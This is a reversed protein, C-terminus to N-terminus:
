GGAGPEGAPPTAPEGEPPTVPEDAPPAQPGEVPPVEDPIGLEARVAPTLDVGTVDRLLPRLLVEQVVVNTNNTNLDDATMRSSFVRDIGQAEAVTQVAAHIRAYAGGLQKASVKDLRVDREQSKQNYQQSLSQYQEYLAQGITQDPNNPDLQQLQQVTANLQAEFQQLQGNFVQAEADRESAYPEMDLMRELLGLVDVTGLRPEAATWGGSAVAPTALLQGFVTAFVAGAVGAAIVLQMTRRM